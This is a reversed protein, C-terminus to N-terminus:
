RNEQEAPFSVSLLSQILEHVASGSSGARLLTRISARDVTRGQSVESLGSAFGGTGQLASSRKTTGPRSRSINLGSALFALRFLFKPTFELINNVAKEHFGAISLGSRAALQNVKRIRIRLRGDLGRERIPSGHRSRQAFISFLSFDVMLSHSLSRIAYLTIM